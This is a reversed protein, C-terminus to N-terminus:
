NLRQKMVDWTLGSEIEERTYQSYGIDAVWNKRQEDTPWFPDELNDLDHGTVGYAIGGALTIAPVGYLVAYAAITSGDTILLHANSLAELMGNISRKTHFFSGAIPVAERFTQKPRYWIPRDTNKQLINIVKKAYTTSNGLNHHNAYKQSSSAFVIAEGSSWFRYPNIPTPMTYLRDHPANCILRTEPWDLMYKVSWQAPERITSNKITGRDYGKDFLFRSVKDSGEKVDLVGINIRIDETPRCFIEHNPHHTIKDGHKTVGIKISEVLLKNRAKNQGHIPIYLGIKM